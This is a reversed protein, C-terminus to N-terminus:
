SLIIEICKESSTFSFDTINRSVIKQRISKESESLSFESNIYRELMEEFDDKQPCVIYKKPDLEPGVILNKNDGNSVNWSPYIFFSDLFLTEIVSTTNTGIIIKSNQIIRSFKYDHSIFLNNKEKIIKKSILRDKDSKTKTKVLFKFKPYKESLSNIIELAQDSTNILKYSPLSFDFFTILNATKKNRYKDYADIRPIGVSYVSSRDIFLTSGFVTLANEGFVFVKDINLKEFATSSYYKRLLNLQNPSGISERYLACISVNNKSLVKTFEQVEWYDVNSLLISHINYRYLYKKYVYTYYDELERKEIKLIEIKNEFNVINEHNKGHIVGITENWHNIDSNNRFHYSSQFQFEHSIFIDGLFYFLKRSIVILKANKNKRLEAADLNFRPRDIGIILPKGIKFIIQPFNKVFIYFFIIYFLFKDKKQLILNKLVNKIRKKM